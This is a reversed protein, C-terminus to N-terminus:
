THVIQLKMQVLSDISAHFSYIVQKHDYLPAQIQGWAWILESASLNKSAGRQM